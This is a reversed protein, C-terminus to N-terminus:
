SACNLLQLLSSQGVFSLIDVRQNKVFSTPQGQYVGSGDEVTRARCVKEWLTYKENSITEIGEEISIVGCGRHVTM